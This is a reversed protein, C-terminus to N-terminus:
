AGHIMSVAADISVAAQVGTKLDKLTLIGAAAEDPGVIALWRAGRADAEKLQAKFKRDGLYVETPISAARLAAGVRLSAEMLEPAFVAVFVQVEPALDAFLGRDEMIALIRELGLAIGVAPVERGSLLGILRDYRGGAAITGVGGDEVVVEYVPGTYYDLGRALAPAVAIRARPIGLAVAYALVQRLTAVGARGEEDLRAELADLAADQESPVDLLAWLRDPLEVAFGRALLEKSVGEKGIKDLKDLAILLSTEREAVGLERALAALIRRDNLLVSYQTFGLADLSEVAVALVEAEAAASTAGAIDVDCQWFERFRGKQPRDARWVPQMQFRKFPLRLDANMSLVRAFPVTLDYRLALDSEGKEGGEGRKLIKYILRDGEEGYKGTLTELREFAPTELAEFGHAVFVSRVTEIVKRRQRMQAPLFDRTGKPLFVPM